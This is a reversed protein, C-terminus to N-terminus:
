CIKMKHHKIICFKFFFCQELTGEPGVITTVDSWMEELHQLNTARKLQNLQLELAKELRQTEDKHKEYEKYKNKIM